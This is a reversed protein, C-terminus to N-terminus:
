RLVMHYRNSQRSCCGIATFKSLRDDKSQWFLENSERMAELVSKTCPVCVSIAQQDPHVGLLMIADPDHEEASPSEAEIAEDIVAFFM